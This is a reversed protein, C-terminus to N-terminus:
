ESPTPDVGDMRNLLNIIYAIELALIKSAVEDRIMAEITANAAAENAANTRAVVADVEAKSEAEVELQRVQAAQLNAKATCAEAQSLELDELEAIIRAKDFVEAM